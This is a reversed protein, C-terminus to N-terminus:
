RSSPMTRKHFVLQSGVLRQAFIKVSNKPLLDVARERQGPASLFRAVRQHVVDPFMELFCASNKLEHALFNAVACKALVVASQPIDAPQHCLNAIGLHM